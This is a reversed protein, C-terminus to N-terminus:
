ILDHEVVYKVLPRLRNKLPTNDKIQYAFSTTFDQGQEAAQAIDIVEDKDTLSVKLVLSAMMVGYKSYNKWDKLLQDFSYLRDPDSGLRELHHSFSKYYNKLIDNLNELDEQSICTFLFYSLDAIPSAFRSGQWDLFAVNKPLNKDNNESYYMFNNNWCDGHVVVKLAGSNEIMDSYIFDAQQKFNKWRNMFSEQFDDKMLDYVEEIGTGFLLSMNVSERFKDFIIKFPAVLKQFKEPQQDQIAVSTAHFKGYEKLVLDIHKRSLPKKRDWLDYG